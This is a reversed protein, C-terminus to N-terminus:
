ADYVWEGTLDGPTIRQYLVDDVFFDISSETWEVAFLHYDTDFRKDTFGFSQTIAAGGSYGPGHVTGNIINPEQGRLEMIDIEGCLPWGTTEIDAGLLWFAPWIGPGYPTKIRAEFRGYAQSFLEQTKIRASTFPAGAFTESRATIVLFGAGDLAANEPRDTYYQLEQNGWGNDGTGIDFAWKSPDPSAGAPGDFEDSWVLQWNRQELTQGEDAKCGSLGLIAALCLISGSLKKIDSYKM